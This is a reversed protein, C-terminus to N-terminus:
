CLSPGYFREVGPQRVYDPMGDAPNFTRLDVSTSTQACMSQIATITARAAREAYEPAVGIVVLFRHREPAEALVLELLYAVKVFPMETYRAMLTVMLWAPPNAEELILLQPEQEPDERVVKAITGTELLESIEEPYLVPGGDNPNLM